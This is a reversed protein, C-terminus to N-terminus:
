LSHVPFNVFRIRSNPHHYLAEKISQFYITKCDLCCVVKKKDIMRYSTETSSCDKCTMSVYLVGEKYWIFDRM